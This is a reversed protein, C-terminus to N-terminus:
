NAGILHQTDIIVDLAMIRLPIDHGNVIALLDDLEDLMKHLLHSDIQHFQPENM